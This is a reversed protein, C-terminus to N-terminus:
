FINLNCFSNITALIHAPLSSKWRNAILSSNKTLAMRNIYQEIDTTWSINAFKYLKVAETKLNTALKDYHLEYCNRLIVSKLKPTKGLNSFLTEARKISACYRSIRKILKSQLKVSNENAGNTTTNKFNALSNYLGRPDRTLHITKVGRLMNPLLFIVDSVRITKIVIHPFKKCMLDVNKAKKLVRSRAIDGQVLGSLIEYPFVSRLFGRRRRRARMNVDDDFLQFSANIIHSLECNFMKKLFIPYLHQNQPTEFWLRDLEIFILPEFVGFVNSGGRLLDFTFTSGSHYTAAIHVRNRESIVDDVIKWNQKDITRFLKKVEFHLKTMANKESYNFTMLIDDIVDALESLYLVRTSDATSVNQNSVVSFWLVSLSALCLAVASLYVCLFTKNM